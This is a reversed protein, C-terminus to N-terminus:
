KEPSLRWWGYVLVSAIGVEIALMLLSADTWGYISFSVLRFLALCFSFVASFFFAAEVYRPAFSSLLMAAGLGFQLGGYVAFFESRALGTNLGLGLFGAAADAQFVCWMASILYLGGCVRFIALM